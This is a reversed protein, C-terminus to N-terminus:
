FNRRLTDFRQSGWTRTRPPWGYVKRPAPNTILNKIRVRSGCYAFLLAAGYVIYVSYLM